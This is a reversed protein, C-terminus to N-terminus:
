ETQGVASPYFARHCDDCSEAMARFATNFTAFNTTGGGAAREQIFQHAIANVKIAYDRFEECYKKWEEVADPRDSQVVNPISGQSIAALGALHAIVQQRAQEMRPNAAAMVTNFRSEAGALRNVASSLNPLAQMAPGLESVKDSWSLPAADSTNTLAAQLATLAANGDNFNQAAALRRAAAIIHPAARKYKSDDNALGVALAVLALGNVDRVINVADEVYRISGDLRALDRAIVTMYEDIQATLDDLPPLPVDGASMAVRAATQAAGAIQSAPQASSAAPKALAATEDASPAASPTSLAPPEYGICFALLLVSFTLLKRM